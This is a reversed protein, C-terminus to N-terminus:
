KEKRALYLFFPVGILATIAGVPTEYPANIVRAGIDAFVLLLAGLVASCPISWKYDVGVLLRAIHPIVLGIFGVPGVAAVAAGGLVLVLIASAARVLTTRQGLSAAIDDGLSMITISRSLVLSGVLGAAIWPSIMKIIGWDTGGLGGAYWFSINQATHFYISLGQSFSLLLASVAAGALTLRIPTPGGRSISSIGYVIGTGLAAGAFSFMIISHFSMGPFFSFCVALAFASGANLGILDPSALPNRTIGQMICGAVAFAAGVIAGALARPLRIQRVVQHQSSDPNFHFVAEWVTRFHINVAGLSISLTIGLFLAALGGVIIIMAILPRSQVKSQVRKSENHKSENHITKMLNKDVEEVFLHYCNEFSLVIIIIIM